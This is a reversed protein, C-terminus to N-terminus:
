GFGGFTRKKPDLRCAAIGHGDMMVVNLWEGNPTFGLWPMTDKQKRKAPDIIKEKEKGTQVDWLILGGDTDASAVLDPGFAVATIPAPHEFTHRLAWGPAAATTNAATRLPVPDPPPPPNAAVPPPGPERVAPEA